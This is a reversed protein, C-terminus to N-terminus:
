PSLLGSRRERRIIEFGDDDTSVTYLFRATVLVVRTDTGFRLEGLLENSPDIVFYSTGKVAVSRTRRVLLKGDPVAILARNGQTFPPIERPFRSAEIRSAQPNRRVYEAHEARTFPTVPVPLPAGRIWRGDRGRRDIRFPDLRAVALTGDPFLTAAEEASLPSSADTKGELVRGDPALRTTTIVMPRRRLSTLRTVSGTRLDARIIEVSDATTYEVRGVRSPIVPNGLLGALSDGSEVFGGTARIAPHDVPFTETISDGVLMLWRRTGLDVLLTSDAGVALLRYPSLYEGPGRGTRGVKRAPGGRFDLSWVQAEPSDVVLLRGSRLERISNVGTFQHGAEQAPAPRAFALSAVSICAVHHLM